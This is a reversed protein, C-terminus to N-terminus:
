VVSKPHLLNPKVCSNNLKQGVKNTNYQTHYSSNLEFSLSYFGESEAIVYKLKNDFKGLM